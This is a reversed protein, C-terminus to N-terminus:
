EGMVHKEIRLPYKIGNSKLLRKLKNLMHLDLQMFIDVENRHEGRCSTSNLGFKHMIKECVDNSIDGTPCVIHAYYFTEGQLFTKETFYNKKGTNLRDRLIPPIWNHTVRNIFGRRDIDTNEPEPLPNERPQGSPNELETGGGKPPSTMQANYEQAEELERGHWGDAETIEGDGNTDGYMGSKPNRVFKDTNPM